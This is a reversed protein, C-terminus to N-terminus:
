RKFTRPKVGLPKVTTPNGSQAGLTVSKGNNVKDVEGLRNGYDVVATIKESGSVKLNSVFTATGGPHQLYRQPDIVKISA